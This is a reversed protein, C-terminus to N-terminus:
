LDFPSLHEWATEDQLDQWGLYVYHSRYAKKPSPPTDPPITWRLPLRGQLGSLSCQAVFTADQARSEVATLNAIV